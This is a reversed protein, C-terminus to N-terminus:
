SNSQYLCARLVAGLKADRQMLKIETNGSTSAAPKLLKAFCKSNHLVTNRTGTAHLRLWYCVTEGCLLMSNYRRANIAANYGTLIYSVVPVAM